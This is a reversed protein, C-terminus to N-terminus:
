MACDRCFKTMTEVDICKGYSITTVVGKLSAHGRRQWSGDLSVRCLGYGDASKESNIFVTKAAKSMITPWQSILIM